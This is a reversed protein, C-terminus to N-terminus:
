LRLSTSSGSFSAIVWEGIKEQDDFSFLGDPHSTLEAGQV